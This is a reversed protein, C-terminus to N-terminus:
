HRRRRDCLWIVATCHGPGQCPFKTPVSEPLQSVGMAGDVAGRKARTPLDPTGRRWCGNGRHITVGPHRAKQGAVNKRAIARWAGTGATISRKRMPRPLPRHRLLPRPRGRRRNSNGRDAVGAGRRRPVDSRQPWDDGRSSGGAGWRGVHQRATADSGSATAPALLAIAVSGDAAAPM